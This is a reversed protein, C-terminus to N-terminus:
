DSACRAEVLTKATLTRNRANVTWIAIAANQHQASSRRYPGVCSPGLRASSDRDATLGLYPAALPLDELAPWLDPTLPGAVVVSQIGCSSESRTPSGSLLGDKARLYESEYRNALPLVEISPILGLVIVRRPQTDVAVQVTIIVAKLAQPPEDIDDICAVDDDVGDGVAGIAGAAGGGEAVVDDQEM